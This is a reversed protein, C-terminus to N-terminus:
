ITQGQEKRRLIRSFYMGGQSTFGCSVLNKGWLHLGWVTFWLTVFFIVQPSPICTGASEQGVLLAPGSSAKEISEFGYGLVKNWQGALTSFWNKEEWSPPHWCEKQGNLSDYCKGDKLIFKLLKSHLMQPFSSVSFFSTSWIEFRGSGWSWLLGFDWKATHSDSSFMWSLCYAFSVHFSRKLSM